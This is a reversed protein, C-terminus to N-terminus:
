VKDSRKSKLISVEQYEKLDEIQRSKRSAAVIIKDRMLEKDHNMDSKDVQLLKSDRSPIVQPPEVENLLDEAEFVYTVNRETKIKVLAM